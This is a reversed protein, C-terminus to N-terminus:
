LNENIERIFRRYHMCCCFWIILYIIIFVAIWILAGATTHPIWRCIWAICFMVTTTTIFHLVTQKLLSWTDMEFIVTSGAFVSGLIGTLVFQLLVAAIQTSCLETLAKAVPYYLGTGAQVSELITIFYGICVGTPFGLLSRNIVEKHM